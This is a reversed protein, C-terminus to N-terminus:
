RSSKLEELLLEGNSIGTMTRLFRIDKNLIKKIEKAALPKDLQVFNELEQYYCEKTKGEHDEKILDGTGIGYAVIGKGNEYLFVTDGKKIRKIHNKWPYYFAAAIKRKLMMLHDDISNGKNTNLLHFKVDYQKDDSEDELSSRVLKWAKDTSESILKLMMAQRSLGLYVALEDVKTHLDDPLRVTSAILEQKVNKSKILDELNM